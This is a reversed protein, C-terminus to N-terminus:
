GRMDALRGITAPGAACASLMKLLWSTPTWPLPFARRGFCVQMELEHEDETVTSNSNDIVPIDEYEEDALEQLGTVVTEEAMM